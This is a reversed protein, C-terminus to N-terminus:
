WVCGRPHHVARSRAALILNAHVFGHRMLDFDGERASRRDPVSRDPRVASNRASAAISITLRPSLDTVSISRWQRIVSATVTVLFHATRPTTPSCGVISGPFDDSYMEPQGSVM